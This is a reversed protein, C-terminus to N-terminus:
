VADLGRISDRHVDFTMEVEDVVGMERSSLSREEANSEKYWGSPGTGALNVSGRRAKSMPIASTIPRLHSGRKPVPSIEDSIVRRLGESSANSQSQRSMKKTMGSFSKWGRIAYDTFTRTGLASLTPLNCAVLGM